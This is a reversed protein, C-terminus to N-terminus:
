EGLDPFDVKDYLRLTENWDKKQRRRVSFYKVSAEWANSARGKHERGSYTFYTEPDAPLGLSNVSLNLLRAHLDDRVRCMDQLTQTGTILLRALATFARFASIADELWRLTMWMCVPVMVVTIPALVFSMMTVGFWVFLGSFLGYILKYQAIEDWTDWVPGTKKFNHVSYATTLFVPTWLLLGPISIVFLFLSWSLRIIIRALITRRSLPRRIRDDKVGWYSLQAQYAKLDNFLSNVRTNEEQHEADSNDRTTKFADIYSL